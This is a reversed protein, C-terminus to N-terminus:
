YPTARGNSTPERELRPNERCFGGTGRLTEMCQERSEYNCSWGSMTPPTELCWRYVHSPAQAQAAAGGLWLLGGAVLVSSLIHRM